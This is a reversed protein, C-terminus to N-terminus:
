WGARSRRVKPTTVEVWQIAVATPMPMSSPPLAKSAPEGRGERELHDLRMQVSGAAVHRDDDVVHLRPLVSTDAALTRRRGTRGDRM